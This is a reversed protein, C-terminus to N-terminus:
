GGGREPVDLIHLGKAIYGATRIRAIASSRVDFYRREERCGQFAPEIELTASAVSSELTPRVALFGERQTGHSLARLNTCRENPLARTVGSAGLPSKAAELSAVTGLKDSESSFLSGATVVYLIGPVLGPVRRLVAVVRRWAHPCSRLNRLTASEVTGNL